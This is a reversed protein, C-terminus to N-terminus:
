EREGGVALGAAVGRAYQADFEAELEANAGRLGAVVRRSWAFYERKRELPWDAPPSDLMDRLNAAKDALKIMQARKSKAPATEVQLRKREPKELSKDDTVERVLEAVDRGFRQALEEYTAKTDELTDHLLAALVLNADEGKTARAVSHAVEALHKVYPEGAAGKRKQVGHKRVAFELAETLLVIETM